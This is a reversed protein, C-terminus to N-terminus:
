GPGQPPKKNNMDYIQQWKPSLDDWSEEIWKGDKLQKRLVFKGNDYVIVSILNGQQDFSRYEGHQKGNLWNGEYIVNLNM